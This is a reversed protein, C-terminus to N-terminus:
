DPCVICRYNYYGKIEVLQASYAHCEETVILGIACTDGFACFIQPDLKARLDAEAESCTYGYGADVTTQKPSGCRCSGSADAAPAMVAGAVTVVSLLLILAVLKTRRARM